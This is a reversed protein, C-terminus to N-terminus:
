GKGDFLVGRMEAMRQAAELLAEPPYQRVVANTKPDVVEVVYRGSQDDYAIHVNMDPQSPQAQRGEVEVRDGEHPVAEPRPQRAGEGGAVAPPPDARGAQPPQPPTGLAASVPSLSSM